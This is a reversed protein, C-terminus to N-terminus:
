GITFRESRAEIRRSPLGLLRILLRKAGEGM